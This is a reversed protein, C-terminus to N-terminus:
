ITEISLFAQVNVILPQYYISYTEKLQGYLIHDIIFSNM